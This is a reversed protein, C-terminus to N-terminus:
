ETFQVTLIPITGMPFAPRKGFHVQCTAYVCVYGCLVEVTPHCFSSPVYCLCGCVSGCYSSLIFKAHLMCVWEWLLIASHVQCTVYVGVGVSPHCFSSPMYCLCGCVSGCYSSLIFKAHLIFVGVCEWLLIVFHVQSTVYVYVDVCVGLIHCTVCVGVVQCTVYVCVDVCVGLVHCTVCVCEWLKAHLMCVSVDVCERVVQCRVYVCVCGCVGVVQCTVYVCVCMWLGGVQCTVYVCVCGCDVLRAYLMCVCM